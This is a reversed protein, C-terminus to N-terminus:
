DVQEAGLGVPSSVLRQHQQLCRSHQIYQLERPENVRFAPSSQRRHSPRYSSALSGVLLRCSLPEVGDGHCDVTLTEDKGRFGFTLRDTKVKRSM